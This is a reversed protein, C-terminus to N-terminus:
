EHSIYEGGNDSRLIKITSSTQKEAYKKYKCFTAFAQNKKKIFSVVIFRTTHDIFSIFYRAGPLSPIPFPGCLDTHVLQLLRETM